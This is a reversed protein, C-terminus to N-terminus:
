LSARSVTFDRAARYERFITSKEELVFSLHGSLSGIFASTGRGIKASPNLVEGFSYSDIRPMLVGVKKM